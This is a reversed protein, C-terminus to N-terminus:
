IKYRQKDYISEFQLYIDDHFLFLICLRIHNGLFEYRTLIHSSTWNYFIRYNHSFTLSCCMLYSDTHNRGLSLVILPFSQGSGIRTHQIFVPPRAKPHELTINRFAMIIVSIRMSTTFPIIGTMRLLHSLFHIPIRIIHRIAIALQLCFTCVMVHFQQIDDVRTVM